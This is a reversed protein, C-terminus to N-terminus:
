RSLEGSGDVADTAQARRSATTFRLVGTQDVYFSRYGTSTSEPWAQLEYGADIMKLSYCYGKHCGQHDASQLGTKAPLQLGAFTLAYRGNRQFYAEESAMLLGMNKWAETDQARKSGMFQVQICATELLIVTLFLSIILKGM